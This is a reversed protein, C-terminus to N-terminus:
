IQVCWLLSLSMVLWTLDLKNFLRLGRAHQMTPLINTYMYFMNNANLVGIM